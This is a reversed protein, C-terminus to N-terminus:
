VTTPADSQLTRDMEVRNRGAHKARYLAADARKLADAASGGPPALAVGFSATVAIRGASSAIESHELRERLKEALRAADRVQTGDCAILFEEGGWRGFVDSARLNGAIVAAVRKLVEDGCDHGYRDNVYKFHDVDLLILTIGRAADEQDDLAQELGRRNLVGTLEDISALRRLKDQESRLVRTRRTLADIERQQRLHSRRLETWGRLVLGSAGLLWACLIGLYLRDRSLWQGTLTLARLQLEHEQGAELFPLDISFASANALGPRNYERPLDFQHVWWEPVTLESLAVRIPKGIDAPRLDISHFRASNADEVKSFRPDFNRIGLRVSPASGKYGIDLEVSDFGSLDRGRSPDRDTLVFTLGCGLYPKPETYHCRLRLQTADLWQVSAGDQRGDSTVLYPGNVAGPRTLDLRREPLLEFGLLVALTLAVGGALLSSNSLNYRM